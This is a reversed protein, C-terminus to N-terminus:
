TNYPIGGITLDNNGFSHDYPVGGIDAVYEEDPTLYFYGSLINFPSTTHEDGQIGCDMVGFKPDRYNQMLPLGWYTDDDKKTVFAPSRSRSDYHVVFQNYPNISSVPISAETAFFALSAYEPPVVTVTVEAESDLSHKIDINITFRTGPQPRALSDILNPDAQKKQAAFPLVIELFPIPQNDINVGYVVINGFTFPGAMEPIVLTHRVSDNGTVKSKVWGQYGTFVVSGRPAIDEADPEYGFSTGVKFMYISVVSFGALSNSILRKGVELYKAKIDAM